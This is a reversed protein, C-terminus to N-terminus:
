SEPEAHRMERRETLESPIPDTFLGSWRARLAALTAVKDPGTQQRTGEAKLATQLATKQKATM